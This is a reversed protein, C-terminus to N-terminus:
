NQVFVLMSTFISGDNNLIKLEHLGNELMTTDLKFNHRSVGKISLCIDSEEYCITNSIARSNSHFRGDIYLKKTHNEMAVVRSYLCVGYELRLIGCVIGSICKPSNQSIYVRRINSSENNSKQGIASITIGASIIVIMILCIVVKKNKM